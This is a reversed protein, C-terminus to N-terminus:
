FHIYTLKTREEFGTHKTFLLIKKPLIMNQINM